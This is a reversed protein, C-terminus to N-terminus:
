GGPLRAPIRIEIEPEEGRYIRVRLFLRFLEGRLAQDDEAQKLHDRLWGAIENARDRADGPAEQPNARIIALDQLLARRRRGIETVKAQVVTHSVGALVVDALRSEENDLAALAHEIVTTQRTAGSQRSAREAARAQREALRGLMGRGAIIKLEDFARAELRDAPERSQCDPIDLRRRSTCRYYRYIKVDRDNWGVVGACALPRNFRLGICRKCVVVGRLPWADTRPGRMRDRNHDLRAQAAGFLLEDVIAPCPMMIWEARDREIRRRTSGTRAINVRNYYLRGVYTENRLINRVSNPSWQGGMRSPIQERILLEAIREITMGGAFLSYVRRVAAAEEPVVLLEGSRNAFEPIVQSEPVSIQRYGYTRYYVPGRGTETAKRVRGRMTREKILEGEYEALEGMIGRQLRGAPTAEFSQECYLVAIGRGHLFEEYTRRLHNSRALRDLRICILLDFARQEALESVRGLGPRSLTKGTYDDSIVEVLELGREECYRVMRDRQDPLSFGNEAQEDTSVRSYAVARM